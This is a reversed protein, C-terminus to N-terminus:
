KEFRLIGEFLWNAIAQRNNPEIVRIQDRPNQINGIEIFSTIPHTKRTMYLGRGTVTGEYGRGPQAEDYKEKITNMLTQSFEKGVISGPAHYFFIDIRQGTYRSDVHFVICRQEIATNKNQYYLDNIIEARKRLRELQNLAIPHNGFYYEDKSNNLYNDDRIGDNDDRVVIYVTAGHEILNRAFRLAVDYAYEDEHLEYGNKYGVAGPDPGGHGSVVYYVYGELSNDKINIKSYKEGFIPFEVVKTENSEDAENINTDQIKFDPVWLVLDVRYDETKVGKKHMRENYKQISVAYDWDFNKITSRISTGNYKYVKIPLYYMEKLRLQKNKGLKEKNIEIFKQIETKPIDYRRFLSYIGDGKKIDVMLYEQSFMCIGSFFFLWIIKKM